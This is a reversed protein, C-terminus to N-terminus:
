MRPKEGEPKIDKFLFYMLSASALRFASAFYFPLDISVYEFFYGTLSPIGASTVGRVVTVVGVASARSRSKIVGMLYSQRLPVDISSFLSMFLRLIAVLMYSPMLPTLITGVVVPLRSIVTARITGVRHAMKLGLVYSFLTLFRTLGFLTGIQGLGVGFRLYYWYSLFKGTFSGGVIDLAIVGSWKILIMREDKDPDDVNEVTTSSRSMTENLLTFFLFTVVGIVAFIMFIPKYSEIESFGISQFTEPLVASFSGFISGITGLFANVSFATTREDSSVKETLMAQEAPTYRVGVGFIVATVMLVSINNTLAMIVGGVVILGSTFLLVPKRGYRDAMMGELLSRFASFLAVGTFTLGIAVSSAGLKSLYISFIVSLIASGFSRLVRTTVLIKVDRPFARLVLLGSFM